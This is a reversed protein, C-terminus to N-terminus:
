IAPVLLLRELALPRQISSIERECPRSCDMCLNSGRVIALRSPIEVTKMCCVVYPRVLGISHSYPFNTLPGAMSSWELAM